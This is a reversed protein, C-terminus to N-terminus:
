NCPTAPLYICHDFPAKPSVSTFLSPDVNPRVDEPDATTLYADTLTSESDTNFSDNLKTVSSLQDNSLTAKQCVPPTTTQRSEDSKRRTFTKFTPPNALILFSLM